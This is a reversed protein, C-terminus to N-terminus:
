QIFISTYLSFVHVNFSSSLNSFQSLSPSQIPLFLTSSFCLFNSFHQHRITPSKHVSVSHMIYWVQSCAAAWMWALLLLLLWHLSAAAKHVWASCYALNPWICLLSLLVILIHVPQAHALNFVSTMILPTGRGLSSVPLESAQEWSKVSRRRDSPVSPPSEIHFTTRQPCSVRWKVRLRQCRSDLHAFWAM